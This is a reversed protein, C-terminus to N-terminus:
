IKNSELKESVNIAKEYKDKRQSRMLLSPNHNKKHVPKGYHSEKSLMPGFTVHHM